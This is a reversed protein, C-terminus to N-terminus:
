RDNNKQLNLLKPLLPILAPCINEGGAVPLAPYGSFSFRLGFRKLRRRSDSNPSEFARGRRGSRLASGVASFEAKRFNSQLLLAKILAMCCYPPSKKLFSYFFQGSFSTRWRRGPHVGDQGSVSGIMVPSRASRKRCLNSALGSSFVPAAEHMM